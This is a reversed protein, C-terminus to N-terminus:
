AKQGDEDKKYTTRRRLFGTINIIYKRTLRILNFFFWVPFPSQALGDGDQVGISHLHAEVGRPLWGQWREFVGVVFLGEENITMCPLLPM